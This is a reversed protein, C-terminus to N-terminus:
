HKIHMKFFYRNTNTNQKIAFGILCLSLQLFVTALIAFFLLM